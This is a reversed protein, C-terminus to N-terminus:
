HVLKESDNHNRDERSPAGGLCRFLWVDHQDQAVVLRPRVVAEHPMRVDLRRVEVLQGRAAQPKFAAVHRDGSQRGDSADITVPSYGTVCPIVPLSTSPPLRHRPARVQIFRQAFSEVLEGAEDLQQGGVAVEGMLRALPPFAGPLVATEGVAHGVAVRPPAAMAVCPQRDAAFPHLRHRVEDVVRHRLLFGEEDPVRREQRVGRVIRRLAQQFSVGPRAAGRVHGLVVRHALPEVFGAALQHIGPHSSPSM